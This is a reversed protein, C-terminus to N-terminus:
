IRGSPLGKDVGSKSLGGKFKFKHSLHSLSICLIASPIIEPGGNDGIIEGGGESIGQNDLIGRGQEM